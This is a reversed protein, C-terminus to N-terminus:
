KKKLGAVENTLKWQGNEKVFVVDVGNPPPAWKFMATVVARNGEIRENKADCIEATIEEMSLYESLTKEGSEKMGAEYDKLTEASYLKRLAAEDKKIRAECYAKIIPKLTPADNAAAAPVSAAPEDVSPAAHRNAKDNNAVNTSTEGGGCAAAMLAAALMLGSGIKTFRM